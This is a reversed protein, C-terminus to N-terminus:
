VNREEAIIEMNSTRRQQQHHSHHLHHHLHQHLHQHQPVTGDPEVLAVHGRAALVGSNRDYTITDARLAHDGQWVRVNGQWTVLGNKAYSEQDALYTLPDQQSTPKGIVVIHSTNAGHMGAAFLTQPAVLATGALAAGALSAGRRSRIPLWWPVSM